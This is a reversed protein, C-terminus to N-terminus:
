NYESKNKCLMNLSYILTLVFKYTWSKRTGDVGPCSILATENAFKKASRMLLGPISIIEPRPENKHFKIRVRGNAETTTDVNSSLVQDPGDQGTQSPDAYRPESETSNM